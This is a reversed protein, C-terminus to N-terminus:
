AQQTMLQNSLLYNHQGFHLICYRPLSTIPVGYADRSKSLSLLTLLLPFENMEM